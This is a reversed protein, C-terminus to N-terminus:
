LEDSHFIFAMLIALTGVAFICNFLFWICSITRTYSQYNDDLGKRWIETFCVRDGIDKTAYVSATVNVDFVKGNDMRVVMIFKPGYRSPSDYKKYVNGCVDMYQTRDDYALQCKWSVICLSILIVSVLLKLKWMFM